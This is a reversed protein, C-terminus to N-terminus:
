VDRACRFGSFIQRRIPYDWNRFTNRIAGSRTAWSGGRLVKYQDGFFAESYEPYPYAVFDPYGMFNTSTWEWVDGIMGYCGLPSVNREFAGVPATGFSLQDVNALLMTPEADGWPFPQASTTAQNWSAAIEWEQETPLRKGAWCAYADAEYYCVHCVPHDPALPATVDMTRSMWGDSTLTWHRPAGAGSNSLWARGADSWLDLRRYGDDAMFEAYAGNTVPAGDIEFAAVSVIHRPRENDYASAHDDTGIPYEGAEIRIMRDFKDDGRTPVVAVRSARYPAGAKLQLTQLITENHQYEHQLVMNYVFGGALLPHTSALEATRLVELVDTRIEAAMNVLSGLSPLPLAARTARPHEFPNYMGPMESFEIPGSLNRTLWLEEFHVIHGLDWLIPSMLSDHQARLDEDSLPSVLLLTRARAETLKACIANGLDSDSRTLM